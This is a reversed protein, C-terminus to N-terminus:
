QTLRKAIIKQLNGFVQGPSFRRWNFDDLEGGSLFYYDINHQQFEKLVHERFNLFIIWGDDGNDEFWEEYYSDDSNHYNLVNEGIVVFKNIGFLAMEDIIDRKLLMVDNSIADNWEGILEIFCYKEEYDVFLIKIYMTESGFDDWQPHLAYNYLSNTFELESYERGYFPSNEDDSAIYLHRWNYFPEIDHMLYSYAFTILRKLLYM